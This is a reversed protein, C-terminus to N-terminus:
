RLPFNHVHPATFKTIKSPKFKSFCVSFPINQFSVGCTNSKLEGITVEFSIAKDGIKRDIMTAELFSGFLFFEEMKGTASQYFFLAKLTLIVDLYSDNIKNIVYFTVRSFPVSM